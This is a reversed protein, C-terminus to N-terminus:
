RSHPQHFYFIRFRTVFLPNISRRTGYPTASVEDGEHVEDKLSFGPERSYNEAPIVGEAYYKLDLIVEKEDVSIVTGTLIDGEEITKMSEELEKEYDKMSEAM